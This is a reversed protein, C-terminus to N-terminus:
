AEIQDFDQLCTFGGDVPLDIGTIDGADVSGLYHMASAMEKPTGFRQIAMMNAAYASFTTATSAM